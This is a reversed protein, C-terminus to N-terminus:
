EGPHSTADLKWLLQRSLRQWVDSDTDLGLEACAILTDIYEATSPQRKRLREAEGQLRVVHEAVAAHLAHREEGWRRDAIAVLWDRHPAPLDLVVCRRIFAAPLEREHNTTIIILVERSASVTVPDDLETVRFSRLEIPELLDNPVDPEAKDIEDLLVVAGPEPQNQAPADPGEHGRASAPDFSWWLVEPHLYKSRDPREGAQADGLRRLADFRWLLDRAETRSTVVQAEFRWELVSAVSRALTSKGSGPPGSVLLPRKTALALNVALIIDLSYMYLSEDAATFAVTGTTEDAVGGKAAPDFLSPNFHV